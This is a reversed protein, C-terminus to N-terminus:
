WREWVVKLWSKYVFRAEAFWIVSVYKSFYKKMLFVGFNFFDVLILFVIWFFVNNGSKEDFLHKLLWFVLRLFISWKMFVFGRIFFFPNLSVNFHTFNCFPLLFSFLPIFNSFFHQQMFSSFEEIISIHVQFIFFFSIINWYHLTIILAITTLILAILQYHNSDFAIEFIM